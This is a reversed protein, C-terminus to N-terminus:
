NTEQPFTGDGRQCHKWYREFPYKCTVTSHLRYAAYDVYTILIQDKERYELRRLKKRRDFFHRNLPKFAFLKFKFTSFRARVSFKSSWKQVAKFQTSSFPFPSSHFSELLAFFFLQGENKKPQRHLKRRCSRVGTIYNYRPNCKKGVM